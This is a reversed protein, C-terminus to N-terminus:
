DSAMNWCCIDKVLACTTHLMHPALHVVAM